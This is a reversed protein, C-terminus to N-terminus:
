AAGGQVVPNRLTGVEPITISVVDGPQLTFDDGPVLGTGTLLFVGNPFVNDRGLWGALDAFRRKMQGSSTRGEFAVAGAREISLRIELERHEPQGPELLIVPGLGCCQRYVKAQPLYLPNEGEIDRSSVDNGVTYGVLRLHRSLLLAVEPEPVNWLADERIRVPANPGSVRSPTAKLFLEPREADYVLDYFRAAGESEEMRAVKSRLYTVGAAWVEQRDVPALLHPTNPDPPAGLLDHFPISVGRSIGDYAESLVAVPDPWGLLTSLFSGGSAQDTALPHVRDEQMLGWTSGQGPSSYHVLKM